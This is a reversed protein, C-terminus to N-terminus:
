KIKKLKIIIITLVILIGLVPLIIYYINFNNYGSKGTKINKIDLQPEIKFKSISLINGDQVSLLYGSVTNNEKEEISANHDWDIRWALTKNMDSYVLSIKKPDPLFLSNAKSIADKDSFSIEQPSQLVHSLEEKISNDYVAVFLSTSYILYTFNYNYFTVFDRNEVSTKIFHQSFYENGVKSIIYSDAINNYNAGSYSAHLTLAKNGAVPNSNITNNEVERPTLISSKETKQIDYTGVNIDEAVIGGIMFIMLFLVVILVFAERKM